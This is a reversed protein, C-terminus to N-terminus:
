PTERLVDIAALAARRWAGTEAINGFMPPLAEVAARVEALAAARAEALLHDRLMPQHYDIVKAAARRSWEPAPALWFEPYAEDRIMTALRDIVEDRTLARGAATTPETMGSEEVGVSPEAYGQQERETHQNWPRECLVCGNISQAMHARGRRPKGYVPPTVRYGGINPDYFRAARGAATTPETM